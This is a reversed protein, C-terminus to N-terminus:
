NSERLQRAIALLRRVRYSVTSKSIPPSMSEGLEKLSAYPHRLRHHATERLKPTLEHLGLHQDIYDIAEMQEMAAQVIKDVNATECNVLRNINNRVEKTIRVNELQLLANHAGLQKLLEVIQGGDKLYLVPQGRRATRLATIGFRDLCATLYDATPADVGMELHNQREPEALSGRCLFAARVVARVCCRRSPVPLDAQFGQQAAQVLALADRGVHPIRVRYARRGQKGRTRELHLRTPRALRKFLIFAKRASPPNHLTVEVEWGSEDQRASGELRLITGLEAFQCCRQGPITRALEGKVKESFLSRM